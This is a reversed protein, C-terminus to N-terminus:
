LLILKKRLGKVEIGNKTGQDRESADSNYDIKWNGEIFNTILWM